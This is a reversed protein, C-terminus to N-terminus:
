MYTIEIINGEVRINLDSGEKINSIDIKLFEEDAKRIAIDLDKGQTILTARFRKEGTKIEHNINTGGLEKNSKRLYERLKFIKQISFDLTKGFLYGNVYEQVQLDYYIIGIENLLDQASKLSYHDVEVDKRFIEEIDKLEDDSVDGTIALQKKEIAM